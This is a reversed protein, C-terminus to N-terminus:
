LREIRSQGCDTGMGVATGIQSGELRLFDNIFEIVVVRQHAPTSNVKGSPLKPHSNM